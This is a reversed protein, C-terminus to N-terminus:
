KPYPRHLIPFTWMLGHLSKTALRDVQHRLHSSTPSAQLTPFNFVFLPPRIVAQGSVEPSAESSSYRYFVAVKFKEAYGNKKKKRM